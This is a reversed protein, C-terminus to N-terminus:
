VSLSSSIRWYRNTETGFLTRARAATPKTVVNNKNTTAARARRRYLGLFRRLVKDIFRFQWEVGERARRRRAHPSHV